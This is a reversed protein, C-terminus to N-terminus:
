RLITNNPVGIQFPKNESGRFPILNEPVAARADSIAQNRINAEDVFTM